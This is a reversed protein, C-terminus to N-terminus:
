FRKCANPIAEAASHAFSKILDPELLEVATQKGEHCGVASSEARYSQLLYPLVVQGLFPGTSVNHM